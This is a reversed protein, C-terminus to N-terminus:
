RRKSPSNAEAVSCRGVAEEGKRGAHFTEMMRGIRVVWRDVLLVMWLSRRLGLRLRDVEYSIKRRIEVGEESGDGGRDRRRLGSRDWVRVLLLVGIAQLLFVLSPVLGNSFFDMRSSTRILVEGLGVRSVIRRSRCM